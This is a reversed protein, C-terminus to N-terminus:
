SKWRKGCNLCSVFAAIPEDASRTQMEYYTTKFSKCKGRQFLGCRSEDLQAKKLEATIVKELKEKYMNANPGNPFLEAATQNPLGHIQNPLMKQIKEKLDNDRHTINYKLSLYKRKYNEVFTTNEWAPPGIASNERNMEKTKRIAWNFIAKELNTSIVANNNFIHTFQDRIHTRMKSM